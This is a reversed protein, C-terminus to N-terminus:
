KRKHFPLHANPEVAVGRGCSKFLGKCFFERTAKIAAGGPYFTPPLHKLVLVYLFLIIFRYWKNNM